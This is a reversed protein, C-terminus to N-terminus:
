YIAVESAYLRMQDDVDEFYLEKQYKDGSYEVVGDFEFADDGLISMVDELTQRQEVRSFQWKVPNPYNFVNELYFIRSVSKGTVEIQRALMKLRDEFRDLHGEQPENWNVQKNEFINKLPDEM